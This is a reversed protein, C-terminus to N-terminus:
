RSSIHTHTQMHIYIYIIYINNFCMNYTIKNSYLSAVHKELFIVFNCVDSILSIKNKQSPTESHRGPQLATANAQGFSEGAEAEQTALVVPVVM